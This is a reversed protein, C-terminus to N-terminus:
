KDGLCDKNFVRGRDQRKYVDLHTYSVAIISKTRTDGSSREKGRVKDDTLLYITNRPSDVGAIIGSLCISFNLNM